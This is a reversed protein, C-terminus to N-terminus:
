TTVATNMHSGNKPGLLTFKENVAINGIQHRGIQRISLWM